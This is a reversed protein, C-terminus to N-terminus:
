LSLSQAMPIGIDGEALARSSMELFGSHRFVCLSKWQGTIQLALHDPLNNTWNIRINAYDNLYYAKLKQARITDSKSGEDLEYRPFIRGMFGELSEKEKWIPRFVQGTTIINYATPSRCSTMFMVRVALDLAADLNLRSSADSVQWALKIDKRTKAPHQKLLHIFCVLETHSRIPTKVADRKATRVVTSTTEDIYYDFYYALRILRDTDELDFGWIANAVTSKTEDDLSESFPTRVLDVDIDVSPQTITNLSM